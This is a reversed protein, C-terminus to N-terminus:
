QAARRLGRLRSAVDHRGGAQQEALAAVANRQGVDRALGADHDLRDVPDEAALGRQEPCRHLRQQRTAGAPGLHGDLLPRRDAGNM